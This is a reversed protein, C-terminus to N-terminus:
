FGSPTKGATAQGHGERSFGKWTSERRTPLSGLSIFLGQPGAQAGKELGDGVVGEEAEKWGAESFWKLERLLNKRVELARCLINEKGPCQGEPREYFSSLVDRPDRSEARGVRRTHPGPLQGQGGFDLRPGETLEM